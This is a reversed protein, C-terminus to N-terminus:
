QGPPLQRKWHAEKMEKRSEMVRILENVMHTVLDAAHYKRSIEYGEKSMQELLKEESPKDRYKKWWTFVENFARTVEENSM